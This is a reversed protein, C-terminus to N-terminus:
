VILQVLNKTGALILEVDGTYREVLGGAERWAM